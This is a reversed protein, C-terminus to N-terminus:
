NLFQTVLYMSVQIECKWLYLFIELIGFHCSGMKVAAFLNM